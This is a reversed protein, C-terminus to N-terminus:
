EEGIVDGCQSGPLLVLCFVEVHLQSRPWLHMRGHGDAAAQPKGRHGGCSGRKETWGVVVRMPQQSRNRFVGRQRSETGM